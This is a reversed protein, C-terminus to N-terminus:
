VQWRKWQGKAVTELEEVEGEEGSRSSVETKVLKGVKSKLSCELAKLVRGSRRGCRWSLNGIIRNRQEGVSPCACLWVVLAWELDM